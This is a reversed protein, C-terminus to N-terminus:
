HFSQWGFPFTTSMRDSEGTYKQAARLHEATLQPYVSLVQESTEGARLKDVIVSVPIRTGKLCPQGNMVDPNVEILDSHHM